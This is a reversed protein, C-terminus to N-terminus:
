KEKSLSRGDSFNKFMKSAVPKPDKSMTGQAAYKQSAKAAYDVDPLSSVEHYILQGIPMGAYVRLPRVVTMEMTWHGCFGVDGKGATVHINLGLRGLSSKGELFPIHRHTETYEITCALYLEGPMLVVGLQGITFYDVAREEKCDLPLPAFTQPDIKKKYTALTSALHVDYSNTGLSEADFPSIVIANDFMAKEIDHYSLISM